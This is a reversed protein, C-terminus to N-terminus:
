ASLARQSLWGAAEVRRRVVEHDVWRMASRPDNEVTLTKREPRTGQVMCGPGVLPNENIVYGRYYIKM